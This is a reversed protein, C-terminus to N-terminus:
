YVVIDKEAYYNKESQTWTIKGKYTGPLISDKSFFQQGKDDTALLFRRDKRSDNACYFFIEGTAKALHMESPLELVIGGSVPFLKVEASLTAAAAKGDIVQQYRLEQKYYDKEVLEFDTNFAQYVLFAMGGAFLIFALILKNGWNM